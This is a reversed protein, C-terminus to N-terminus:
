GHIDRGDSEGIVLRDPHRMRYGKWLKCALDADAGARARGTGRRIGDQNGIPTREMGIAHM